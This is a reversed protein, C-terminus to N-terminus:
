RGTTGGDAATCPQANGADHQKDIVGQRESPLAALEEKEGEEALM